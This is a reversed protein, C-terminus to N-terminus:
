GRIVVKQVCPSTSLARLAVRFSEILRCIMQRTSMEGWREAADPRLAEVRTRIAADTEPDPLSTV